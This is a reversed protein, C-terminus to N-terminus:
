RAGDKRVALNRANEASWFQARQEDTLLALLREVKKASDVLFTISSGRERSVLELEALLKRELGTTFGPGKKVLDRATLLEDKTLREAPTAVSPQDCRPCEDLDELDNYINLAVFHFVAEAIVERKTGDFLQGVIDELKECFRVHKKLEKRLEEIPMTDIANMADSRAALDSM